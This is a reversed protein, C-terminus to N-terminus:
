FQGALSADVLEDADTGFQAAPLGADLQWLFMKKGVDACKHCGLLESLQMLLHNEDLSGATETEVLDCFQQFLFHM